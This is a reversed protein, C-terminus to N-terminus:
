VGLEDRVERLTQIRGAKIDDLSQKISEIEEDSLPDDDLAMLALRRVVEDYTERPTCKLTDLLAKTEQSMRITTASSM